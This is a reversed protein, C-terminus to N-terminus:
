KKKVEWEKLKDNQFRILKGFCSVINDRMFGIAFNKKAPIKLKTIVENKIQEVMIENTEIKEAYIGLGYFCAQIIKISNNKTHSILYNFIFQKQEEFFSSDIFELIDDITSVSFYNLENQRSKDIYNPVIDNLLRKILNKNLNKHTKLLSGILSCLAMLLKIQEAIEARLLDVEDEDITESKLSLEKKDINQFNRLFIKIILDSILEIEEHDLFVESIEMIIDNLAKIQQEENSTEDFNSHYLSKILIDIFGKAYQKHIAAKNKFCNRMCRVLNIFSTSISQNCLESLGFNFKETLLVTLNELYNMMYLHFNQLINNIVDISLKVGELDENDITHHENKHDIISNFYDNIKQFLQPYFKDFLIGLYNKKNSCLNRWCEIYDNYSFINANTVLIEIIPLIM